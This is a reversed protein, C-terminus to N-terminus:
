FGFAHPIWLGGILNVTSATLDGEDEIFGACGIGVPHLDSHIALFAFLDVAVSHRYYVSLQEQMIQM